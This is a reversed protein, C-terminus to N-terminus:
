EKIRELATEDKPYKKLYLKYHERAKARNDAKWYVNGLSYHAISEAETGPYEELCINLFKIADANKNTYALRRGIYLATREDFYYQETHNKKLDLYLAVAADGGSQKVAHYIPAYIKTRLDNKKPNKFGKVWYEIWANRDVYLEWAAWDALANENQIKQLDKGTALEVRIIGSTKTLMEHFRRFEKM